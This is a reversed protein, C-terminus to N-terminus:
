QIIKVLKVLVCREVRDSFQHQVGNYCWCLKVVFHWVKLKLFTWTFIPMNRNFQSCMIVTCLHGQERNIFAPHTVQYGQSDLSRAPWSCIAVTGVIHLLFWLSNHTWKTGMSYANEMQPLLSSWTQICLLALLTWKYRHFFGGWGEDIRWRHQPPQSSYAM